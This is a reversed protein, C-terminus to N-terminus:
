NRALNNVVDELREQAAEVVSSRNKNAEEYALVARVDAPENLKGIATTAAPASLKDYNRVPLEDVNLAGLDRRASHVADVTGGAGARKAEVETRELVADRGSTWVRAAAKVVERTREATSGVTETAETRM